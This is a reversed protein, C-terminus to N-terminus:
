EAVSRTRIVCVFRAKAWSRSQWHLHTASIRRVFTNDPSSYTKHANHSVGRGRPRLSPCHTVFPRM